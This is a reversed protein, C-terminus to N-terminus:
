ARAGAIAQAVNSQHILSLVTEAYHPDTAYVRGMSAVFGALNKDAKYTDAAKQYPGKDWMASRKAFCNGLTLFTAFLDKVAYERRGDKRAPVEPHKLVATRGGGLALFRGVEALTFWETTNLLQTGHCGSYAKIGFCNNGPAFKLWGSELICQAAVVEAPCGTVKEADVAARAIQPLVTEVGM